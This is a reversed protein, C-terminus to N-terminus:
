GEVGDRFSGVDSRQTGVYGGQSTVFETYGRVKTVRPDRGRGSTRIKWVETETLCVDGEDGGVKSTGIEEGGGESEPGM